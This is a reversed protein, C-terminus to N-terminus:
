HRSGWVSCFWCANGGFTNMLKFKKNWLITQWSCEFFMSSKNYRDALGKFISEGATPVFLPLCLGLSQYQKIIVNSSSVWCFRWDQLSAVRFNKKRSCLQLSFQLFIHIEDRCRKQTPSHKMQERQLYWEGCLMNYSENDLWVLYTWFSWILSFRLSTRSDLTPINRSVASIRIFM